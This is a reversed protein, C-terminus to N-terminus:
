TLKMIMDNGSILCFSYVTFQKLDLIRFDNIETEPSTCQLIMLSTKINKSFSSYVISVKTVGSKLCNITM